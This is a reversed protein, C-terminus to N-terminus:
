IQEHKRVLKRTAHRSLCYFFAPKLHDPCALNERHGVPCERAGEFPEVLRERRHLGDGFIEAVEGGVVAIEAGFGRGRIGLHQVPDGFLFDLAPDLGLKELEGRDEASQMRAALSMLDASIHGQYLTHYHEPGGAAPINFLSLMKMMMQHGGRYGPFFTPLKTYWHNVGGSSAMNVNYFHFKWPGFEDYSRPM